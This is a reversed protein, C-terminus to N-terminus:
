IVMPSSSSAPVPESRDTADAGWGFYGNEFERDTAPLGMRAPNALTLRVPSSAM